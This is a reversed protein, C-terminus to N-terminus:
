IGVAKQKTIPLSKTVYEYLSHTKRSQEHKNCLQSHGVLSPVRPVIDNCTCQERGAVRSSLRRTQRLHSKSLARAPTSAPLPVSLVGPTECALSVRYRGLVIGSGSRGSAGYMDDRGIRGCAM